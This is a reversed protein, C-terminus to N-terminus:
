MQEPKCATCTINETIMTFHTHNEIPKQLEEIISILNTVDKLLWCVEMELRKIREESTLAIM